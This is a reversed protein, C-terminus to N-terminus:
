RRAAATADSPGTFVWLKYGVYRLATGLAIGTVKAANLALQSDYHLGYWWLAVTAVPVLAAVVNIVRLRAYRTGRAPAGHKAEGDM